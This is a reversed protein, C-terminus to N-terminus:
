TAVFCKIIELMDGVGDSNGTLEGDGIVCMFTM